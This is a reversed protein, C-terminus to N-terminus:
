MTRHGDSPHVLVPEKVICGIHDQLTCNRRNFIPQLRYLSSDKMGHLLHIITSEILDGIDNSLGHLVVGMSISGYSIRYDIHALFVQQNLRLAVPTIHTSAITSSSCSVDFSSQRLKGQIHNKIWLGRIPLKGVISSFSFGYRQGYLKWQKQCLSHFPDCHAQGRLNQRM